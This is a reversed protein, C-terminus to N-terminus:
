NRIRRGPVNIQPLGLRAHPRPVGTALDQYSALYLKWFFGSFM